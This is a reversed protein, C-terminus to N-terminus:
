RQQAEATRGAWLVVSNKFSKTAVSHPSPHAPFILSLDQYFIFSLLSIDALRLQLIIEILKQTVRTFLAQDKKLVDSSDSDALSKEHTYSNCVCMRVCTYITPVLKLTVMSMIILLVPELLFM